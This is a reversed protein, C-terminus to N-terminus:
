LNSCSEAIVGDFIVGSSVGFYNWQVLRSLSKSGRTWQSQTGGDSPSSSAKCESRRRISFAVFNGGLM